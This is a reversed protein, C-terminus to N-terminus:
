STAWPSEIMPTIMITPESDIISMTLQCISLM